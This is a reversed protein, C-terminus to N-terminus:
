RLPFGPLIERWIKAAEARSTQSLATGARARYKDAVNVLEDVAAESMGEAVNNRPCAPDMVVLLLRHMRSVLRELKTEYAREDFGVLLDIDDFPRIATGKIYSGSNITEIRGDLDIRSAVTDRHTRARDLESESPTISTLYRDFLDRMEMVM